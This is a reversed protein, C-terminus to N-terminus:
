IRRRRKKITPVEANPIFLRDLTRRKMEKGIGESIQTAYLTVGKDRLRKRLQKLEEEFSASARLTVTRMGNPATM